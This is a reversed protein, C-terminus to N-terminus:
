QSEPTATVLVYGKPVEQVYEKDPPPPTEETFTVNTFGLSTLFDRMYNQANTNALEVVGSENAAIRIESEALQRVETELDKEPRALLGTNRNAVYSRDTDLAPLDEFTKAAPLHIMVTDPGYVQIDEVTMESFDVGAVVKGHAVFVMSEGLVGWLADTNREATVVKELEISATELRSLDNIQTVITTPSPIYVATAPVILSRVLDEVPGMVNQEVKNVSAIVGYAAVSGMVLFIILFVLAINRWTNGGSHSTTSGKAIANDNSSKKTYTEKEEM